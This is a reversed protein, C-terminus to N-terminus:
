LKIKRAPDDKPFDPFPDSEPPPSQEDLEDLLTDFKAKDAAKKVTQQNEYEEFSMGREAVKRLDKYSEFALYQEMPFSRTRYKEEDTAGDEVVWHYVVADIRRFLQKKKEKTQNNAGVLEHFLQKPAYPSTIHVENWLAIANAYRAGLEVKYVDLIKLLTAFPIQNRLEDLFLIPQGCYRDWGGREYDDYRFFKGKGHKKILKVSTYTKGSDPEGIHYFVKVDREDDTKENRMAYYMKKVMAEYRWFRPYADLIEGPTLGDAILEAMLDFDSRHGQRGKIEGHQVVCIVKEDSNHFKGRKYLYDMAQTRSGKTPEFHVAEPFLKRLASARAMRPDEFVMHLHKLGKGSISYSVAGSRLPHSDCWIALVKKVIEEPTGEYYREPNQLGCFWSRTKESWDLKVV